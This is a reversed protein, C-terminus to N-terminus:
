CQWWLYRRATWLVPLPRRTSQSSAYNNDVITTTLISIGCNVLNNDITYFRKFVCDQPFNYVGLYAWPGSLYNFGFRLPFIIDNSNSGILVFMLSFKNPPVRKQNRHFCLKNLIKNPYFIRKKQATITPPPTVNSLGFSPNARGFDLM